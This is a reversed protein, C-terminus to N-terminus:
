LTIGANILAARIADVATKMSQAEAQVYAAGPATPAAIAAAPTYNWDSATFTADETFDVKASVIRNVPAPAVVQTGAKYFKSPAWFPIDGKNWLSYDFEPM